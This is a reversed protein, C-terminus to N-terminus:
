RLSVGDSLAGRCRTSRDRIVVDASLINRLLAPWQENASFVLALLDVGPPLGPRVRRGTERIVRYPPM